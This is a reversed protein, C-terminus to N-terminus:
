DSVGFDQPGVLRVPGYADSHGGGYLGHLRKALQCSKSWNRSRPVWCIEQELFAPWKFEAKGNM